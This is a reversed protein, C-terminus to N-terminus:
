VLSAHFPVVSVICPVTKMSPLTVLEDLTPFYTPLPVIMRLPSKVIALWLASQAFRALELLQSVDAFQSASVFASTITAAPTSADCRLAVRGAGPVLM